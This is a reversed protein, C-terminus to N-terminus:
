FKADRSVTGTNTVIEGTALQVVITIQFETVAPNDSDMFVEVGYQTVPTQTAPVGPVNSATGFWTFQVDAARALGALAVLFLTLKKMPCGRMRFGALRRRTRHTHLCCHPWEICCCVAAM